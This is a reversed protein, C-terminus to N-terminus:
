ITRWHCHVARSATKIILFAEKLYSHSNARSKLTKKLESVRFETHFPIGFTNLWVTRSLFANHDIMNKFETFEWFSNVLHVNTKM